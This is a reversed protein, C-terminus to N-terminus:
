INEKGVKAYRFNEMLFPQCLCIVKLSDKNSTAPVKRISYFVGSCKNDLYKCVCVRVCVRVSVGRSIHKRNKTKRITFYIKKANQVIDRATSLYKESVIQIM